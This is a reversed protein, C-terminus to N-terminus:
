SPYAPLPGSRPRRLARSRRTLLSGHRSDTFQRHRDGCAYRYFVLIGQDRDLARFTRERLLDRAGDVDLDLVAVHLHKREVILVKKGLKSLQWATSCGIIGGGVIIVDYM